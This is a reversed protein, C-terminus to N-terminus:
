RWYGWPPVFGGFGMGFPMGMGMGMGMAPAPGASGVYEYRGRGRATREEQEMEYDKNKDLNASDTEGKDKASTKGVKRKSKLYWYAVLITCTLLIVIILGGLLTALIATAWRWGSPVGVSTNPNTPQLDTESPVLSITSTAMIEHIATAFATTASYSSFITSTLFSDTGSSSIVSVNRDAAIVSNVLTPLHSEMFYAFCILYGINSLNYLPIHRLRHVQQSEDRLVLSFYSSLLIHLLAVALYQTM